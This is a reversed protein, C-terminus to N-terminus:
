LLCLQKSGQHTSAENGAAPSGTQRKAGRGNLAEVCSASPRAAQGAALANKAANVDANEAHGCSLCKFEAQTKRNAKETHGCCSCRQSTFAPNVLRLERGYREAKQQIM